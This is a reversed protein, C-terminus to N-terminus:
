LLGLPEWTGGPFVPALSALGLHTKLAEGAVRRFDTTVALDRDQYLQAPDLGPWRGWVRGGKVKGGLAMMVSAHGHDTGRNGNEALTRGFETMTLLVVDQARSGLDKHFAALSRGLGKLARALRGEAAGEDFHHDWGGVEVFGVRTGLGAKLVRALEFLDRGPSERPYGLALHADPGAKPLGALARRTEGLDRAAGSLLADVAGDYLAEFSGELPVGRLEEVRTFAAVPFRGRMMLPLRPAIAVAALPDRAARRALMARDLWGDETTKVGPTGSEMYDQADFHSRTGDPSGAAQVFALRGEKYLPLLDALAPHLGFTGDLDLVGGPRGPAALGITPRAKRYFPDRFPVVVNLGDMAGRQLVVVVTKGSPRAADAAARAWDPLALATAALGSLALFQRRTLTEDPM